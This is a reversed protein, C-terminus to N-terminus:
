RRKFNKLYPKFFVHWEKQLADDEKGTLIHQEADRMMLTRLSELLSLMPADPYTHRIELTWKLFEYARIREKHQEITIPKKIRTTM